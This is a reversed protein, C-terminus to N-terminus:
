TSESVTHARVLQATEGMTLSLLGDSRRLREVNWLLVELLALNAETDAGFNHPHWWLHVVRGARAARELDAVLREIRAQELHRLRRSRPRLFHTAPIAVPEDGCPTTPWPLDGHGSIPVYADLLRFARRGRTERARPSYAWHERHTRYARVGLEKLVTLYEPNWQNRPLVLSGCVDGLGAGIARAAHLDARFQAATQGSELCYFHSFTHTGLEQHPTRAIAAVISSAFRAPDREEDNGARELEGYPSLHQDRYTPRERPAHALADERGKAFLIGVTAWTAHLDFATFLELLLPIVERTRRARARFADEPTHDRVGWHLEFDLSVILAGPRPPSGHLSAVAM